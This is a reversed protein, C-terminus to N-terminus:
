PEHSVRLMKCINQKSWSSEKQEVQSVGVSYCTDFTPEDKKYMFSLLM